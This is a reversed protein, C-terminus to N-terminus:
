SFIIIGLVPPLGLSLWGLAVLADQSLHPRLRILLELCATGIAISLCLSREYAPATAASLLCFFFLPVLALTVFLGRKRADEEEMQWSGRVLYYLFVLTALYCTPAFLWLEHPSVTM